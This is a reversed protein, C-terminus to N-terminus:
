EKKKESDNSNAAENSRPARKRKAAKPDATIPRYIEVRDGEKLPDEMKVLKGFVGVKQTELDIDIFEKLIGSAEIAQQVTAGDPVEVNLWLQKALTAYAVGVMM